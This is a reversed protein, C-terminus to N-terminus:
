KKLVKYRRIRESRYDLPRRLEALNANVVFDLTNQIFKKKDIDSFRRKEKM